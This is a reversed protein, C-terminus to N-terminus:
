HTYSSGEQRDWHGRPRLRPDASAQNRPNHPEFGAPPISTQRNHTNHATLYLDRRRAPWEELPTRGITTNRLTIISDEFILLGQRVPATAGHYFSFFQRRFGLQLTQSNYKPTAGNAYQGACSSKQGLVKTTNRLKTAITSQLLNHGNRRWDKYIWRVSKDGRHLHVSFLWRLDELPM